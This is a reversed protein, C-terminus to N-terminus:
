LTESSSFLKGALNYWEELLSKMERQVRLICLMSMEGQGTWWYRQAYAVRKNSTKSLVASTHLHSLQTSYSVGHLLNKRSLSTTEKRMLFDAMYGPMLGQGSVPSDLTHWGM